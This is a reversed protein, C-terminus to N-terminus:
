FSPQKEPAEASAQETSKGLCSDRVVLQPTFVRFFNGPPRHGHMMDWLIQAAAEGSLAYCIDVYTLRVDLTADLWSIVGEFGIVGIDEPIRLGREHATRVVDAAPTDNFCVFGDAPCDLSLMERICERETGAAVGIRVLAPDVSIGAESLAACYGMYRDMSSRFRKYALYAVRRYGKDLLHKAAIYGGYYGNLLVQPIERLYDVSRQWFVFPVGVRILYQYNKLNETTTLAPVIILGDIGAAVTRQLLAFETEGVDDTCLVSFDIGHAQAFRAIGNFAKPYLRYTLDPSLVAWRRRKTDDALGDACNQRPAVYTGSGKVCYVMGERQLDRILADATSRAIHWKACIFNRSPIRDNPELTDIYRLLEDKIRQRKAM